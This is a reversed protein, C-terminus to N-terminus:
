AAASRQQYVRGRHHECWPSDQATENGCLTYDSDGYAWRCHRLGANRLTIPSGDPLTVPAPEPIPQPPTRVIRPRVMRRVGGRIGKGRASLELRKAKGIVANRTLGNGLRRAIEAFPVREAHLTKLEEVVEDPWNFGTM